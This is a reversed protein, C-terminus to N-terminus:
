KFAQSITLKVWGLFERAVGSTDTVTLKIIQKKNIPKMVPLFDPLIPIWGPALNFNKFVDHGDITFDFSFNNYNGSRERLLFASIFGIKNNPVKIEFITATLNAGLTIANVIDDEKLKNKFLDFYNVM